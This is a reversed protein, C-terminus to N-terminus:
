NNFIGLISGEGVIFYEKDEIKVEDHAYKSFVVRDGVKVELPLRKEGDEDWKGPGTAIVVGQEPKEQKVTDPIIIFASKAGMEEETLPRLVVRDALPTIPSKAESM